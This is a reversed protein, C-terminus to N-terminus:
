GMTSSSTRRLRRSESAVLSSKGANEFTCPSRSADDRFGVRFGGPEAQADEAVPPAGEEIFADEEDSGAM